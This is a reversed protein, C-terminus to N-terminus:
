NKVFTTASLIGQQGKKTPAYYYVMILLTETRGTWSHVRFPKQKWTEDPKRTLLATMQELIKAKNEKAPIILSCAANESDAFEPVNKKFLADPKSRTTTLAFETGFDNFTWARLEDARVEPQYKELNKGKLENFNGAKAAGATKSIEPLLSMCFVDFMKVTREPGPKEPLVDAIAPSVFALAALAAIISKFITM